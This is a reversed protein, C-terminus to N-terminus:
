LSDNFAKMDNELQRYKKVKDLYEARRTAIEEKSLQSSTM